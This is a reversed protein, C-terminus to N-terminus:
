DSAIPEIGDHDNQVVVTVRGLPKQEVPREVINRLPREVLDGLHKARALTPLDVGLALEVLRQLGSQRVGAAEAEEVDVEIGVVAARGEFTQGAPERLDHSHSSVDAFAFPAHISLGDMGRQKARENSRQVEASLLREKANCPSSGS